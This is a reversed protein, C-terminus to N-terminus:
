DQAQWVDTVKPLGEAGVKLSLFHAVL